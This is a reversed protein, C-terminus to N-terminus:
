VHARGIELCYGFDRMTTDRGEIAVLTREDDGFSRLLRREKMLGRLEAEAAEAEGRLKSSFGSSEM